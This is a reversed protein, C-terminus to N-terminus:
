VLGVIALIVLRDVIVLIVLLVVTAVTAQILLQIALIVLSGAPVMQVQEVLTDLIAVIVQFEAIVQIAV